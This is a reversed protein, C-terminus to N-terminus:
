FHPAYRLKRWIKTLLIPTSLRMLSFLAWILTFSFLFILPFPGYRQSLSLSIKATAIFCVFLFFGISYTKLPPSERTIVLLLTNLIPISLFFLSLIYFLRSSLTKQDFPTYLHHSLRSFLHSFPLDEVSLSLPIPDTMKLNWKTMEMKEIPSIRSYGKEDRIFREIQFARPPDSLELKEMHWIEGSPQKWFLDRLLSTSSLQKNYFLESKDELILLSIPAKEYKTKQLIKQINPDFIEFHFLTFLSLLFAFLYLSRVVKM